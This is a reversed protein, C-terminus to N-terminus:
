VQSALWGAIGMSLGIRAVMVSETKQLYSLTNYKSCFCADADDNIDHRTIKIYQRSFCTNYSILIRIFMISDVKIEFEATKLSTNSTYDTQLFYFQCNINEM